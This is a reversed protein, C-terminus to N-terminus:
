EPMSDLRILTAVQARTACHFLSEVNQQDDPLALLAITPDAYGSQYGRWPYEVQGRMQAIGGVLDIGQYNNLITMIM